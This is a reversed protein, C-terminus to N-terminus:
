FVREFSWMASWWGPDVEIATLTGSQINLALDPKWVNRIRYLTTGPVSELAWSASLWGPAILTSQLGGSEINLYEDTQWRNNIWFVPTNAPDGFAPPQVEFTWQASWWGPDIPGAQPVLSQINIYEDPKWYNRLRTYQSEDALDGSITAVSIGGGGGSSQSVAYILPPSTRPFPDYVAIGNVSSGIFEAYLVQKLDVSLKCLFGGFGIKTPMGLFSTGQVWGGVYVEGAPSVAISTDYTPQTVGRISAFNVVAGTQDFITVFPTAIGPTSVGVHGDSTTYGALNQQPM